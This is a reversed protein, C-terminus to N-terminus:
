TAMTEIHLFLALDRGTEEFKMEYTQLLQLDEVELGVQKLRQEALVEDMEMIQIEMTEHKMVLKRAM